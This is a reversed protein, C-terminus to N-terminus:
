HSGTVTATVKSSSCNEKPTYLSVLGVWSSVRLKAGVIETKLESIKLTLDSTMPKAECFLFDNLTATGIYGASNRQLLATFDSGGFKATLNLPCQRLPCSSRFTWSDMKPDKFGSIGLSTVDTYSAKWQGTLPTTQNAWPKSIAIGAATGVIVVVAITTSWKGGGFALSSGYGSTPSAPPSQTSAKRRFLFMIALSLLAMAALGTASLTVLGVHIRDFGGVHILGHQALTGPTGLLWGGALVIILAYAVTIPGSRAFSEFSQRPHQNALMIWCSLLLAATILGVISLDKLAILSGQVLYLRTENSIAIVLWPAGALISVPIVISVFDDLISRFAISFANWSLRAVSAMAAQVWRATLVALQVIVNTLAVITYALVYAVLTLTNAVIRGTVALANILSIAMLLMVAAFREVALSLPNRARHRLSSYHRLTPPIWAPRRPKRITRVLTSTRRVGIVVSSSAVVLVGGALSVLAIVTVVREMRPEDGPLIYRLALSAVASWAAIVLAAGAIRSIIRSERTLSARLRANPVRAIAYAAFVAIGGVGVIAALSIYFHSTARPLVPLLSAAIWLISTIAFTRRFHRLPIAVLGLCIASYVIFVPLKSNTQAAIEFLAYIVISGIIATLVRVAAPATILPLFRGHDHCYLDTVLSENRDCQDRSCVEVSTPTEPFGFGSFENPATISGSMGSM